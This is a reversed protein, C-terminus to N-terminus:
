QMLGICREHVEKLSKCSFYEIFEHEFDHIEFIVFLPYIFENSFGDKYNRFKFKLNQIRGWYHKSSTFTIYELGTKRCKIKFIILKNFNIPMKYYFFHFFDLIKNSLEFM